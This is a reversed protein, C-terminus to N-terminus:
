DNSPEGGHVYAQAAREIIKEAFKAPKWGEIEVRRKSLASVSVFFQELESCLRKPLDSVDAYREDESPVLIVRDNRITPRKKEHQVARVVAIPRSAIVVGPATPADFIVMADLADGDAARTSPIFGWDYPYALGLQLAKHFVFVGKTPDYKLKILSGKPAEVVVLVNGSEDRCPLNPFDAM